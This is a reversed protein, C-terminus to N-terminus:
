DEEIEDISNLEFHPLIYDEDFVKLLEKVTKVEEL